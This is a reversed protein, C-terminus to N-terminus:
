PGTTFTLDGTSTTNGAPDMITVMYHYTTAPSLGTIIREDEVHFVTGYDEINGYGSDEGWYVRSVFLDPQSPGTEISISIVRSTDSGSDPATDQVMPFPPPLSDLDPWKTANPAYLPDGIAYDRWGLTPNSAFSAEAFNYGNLIYYLLVEPRYHGNLYPESTVGAGATLGRYFAQSLFSTTSQPRRIGAGSNSNLDCAVAGVLWEWVDLYQQYNYWGEYWMASPATEASSGDQFTAGPEGIETANYEWRLTWGGDEVFFKGYAMSSDASAYTGYGFPYGFLDDDSYYGYRTDVYGYGNYYGPSPYIYKEGYLARDILERAWRVDDGELRTVCYIDDGRFTYSHDFHGKDPGVTPSHECYPNAWWMGPMSPRDRDGISFPAAIAGDLARQGYPYYDSVDVTIPVGYCVVLYYFRKTGGQLLRDRLPSVVEDFFRTWENSNYGESTKCHLPLLNQPPIGRKEVYYLALEESDGTGDGDEDPYDANYIVLTKIAAPDIFDASSARIEQAHLTAASLMIFLAAPVTLSALLGGAPYKMGRAVIRHLTKGSLSKGRKM